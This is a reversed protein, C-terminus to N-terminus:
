FSVEFMALLFILVLMNSMSLSAPDQIAINTLSIAEGYKQRAIILDEPSTRINSLMAHGISSVAASLGNAEASHLKPSLCSRFLRSPSTDELSFYQFVFSMVLEETQLCINRPIAYTEQIGPPRYDLDGNGHAMLSKVHEFIVMNSHKIHQNVATFDFTWGNQLKRRVRSEV